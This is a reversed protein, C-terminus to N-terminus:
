LVYTLGITIMTPSYEIGYIPKVSMFGGMNSIYRIGSRLLISNNLKHLIDLGVDIGSPPLPLGGLHVSVFTNNKHYSGIYKKLVISMLNGSNEIQTNENFHRFYFHNFGIAWQFDSFLILEGSLQSTIGFIHEFKDIGDGQWCGGFGATFAFRKTTDNANETENNIEFNNETSFLLTNNLFVIMIIVFIKLKM